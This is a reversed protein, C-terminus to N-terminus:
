RCIGDADARAQQYREAVAAEYAARAGEREAESEAGAALDALPQVAAVFALQEAQLEWGREKWWSMLSGSEGFVTGAVSGCGFWPGVLVRSEGSTASGFDGAADGHGTRLAFVRDVGDTHPRDFTDALRWDFAVVEVDKGVSWSRTRGRASGVGILREVAGLRQLRADSSRFAAGCDTAGEPHDSCPRMM